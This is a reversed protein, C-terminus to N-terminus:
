FSKKLFNEIIHDFKVKDYPVDHDIIINRIKGRYALVGRWSLNNKIEETLEDFKPYKINGKSIDERLKNVESDLNAIIKVKEVIEERLKARSDLIAELQKNNTESANKIFKNEKMIMSFVAIIDRHPEKGQVMYGLTKVHEIVLDVGNKLINFKERLQNHENELISNNLLLDNYKEEFDVKNETIITDCETVEVTSKPVLNPSFPVGENMENVVNVLKVNGMNKEETLKELFKKEILERRDYLIKLLHNYVKPSIDVEAVNFEDAEKPPDIREKVLFQSQAEISQQFYAEVQELVDTSAYYKCHKMHALIDEADKVGENYEKKTDRLTKHLNSNIELMSQLSKEKELLSKSLKDLEETKLKIIAEKENTLQAFKENTLELTEKYKRKNNYIRNELINYDSLLKEHAKSLSNFKTDLIMYKEDVSTSVKPSVTTNLIMFKDNVSTHVKPSVTTNTARLRTDDNYDKTDLILNKDTFATSFDKINTKSDRNYELTEYHNLRVGCDVGCIKSFDILNMKEEVTLFNLFNDNKINSSLFCVRKKQVSNVNLGEFEYKIFTNNKVSPNTTFPM